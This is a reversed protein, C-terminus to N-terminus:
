TLSLSAADADSAPAPAELLALAELMTVTAEVARHDGLRAAIPPHRQMLAAAQDARQTCQPCRTLPVTWTSTTRGAPSQDFVTRSLRLSPQAPASVGCAACAWFGPPLAVLAQTMPETTTM